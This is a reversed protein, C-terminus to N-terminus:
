NASGLYGLQGAKFVAQSRNVANLKMAANHIHFRITACSRSLIVAIEGDTKGVAAWRLCENERKSLRVDPSIWQSKNMVKVYSSIFRRACVGLLEGYEGFEWSLDTHESDVPQFSVVAIQGYSLHLPIVIAGATLAREFFDSLDLGALHLNYQQTHVGNKNCWFPDSEYRCAITLPSTLALRPRNWWRESPKCWGFVEAALIAGSGDVMPAKSAINACAATRLGLSMAIEHLSEAAPRIGDLSRITLRELLGKLATSAVSINQLDVSVGGGNSRM